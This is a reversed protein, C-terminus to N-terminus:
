KGVCFRSFIEGSIDASATDGTVEGLLSVAREADALVADPTMGSIAARMASEMADAASSLAAAQRENTILVAGGTEKKDKLKDYIAKLLRDIGDGTKASVRVIDAFYPSLASEPFASELDSKNIVAVVRESADKKVSEAFEMDEKEFARSGDFVAITLAALAIQGRSRSVGIREVEDLADRMGATDRLSIKTGFLEMRESVVDRTTGPIDTVIAREDGLLANFLSSKGANVRGCIAVPIGTKLFNGREFSGALARIDSLGSELTKRMKEYYFPEIEDDPYDVVAYFHAITDIINKRVSSIKDYIGGGMAALANRVESETEAEILDAVAEAASLDMKGNLFATKTFEGAEAQRAGHHILARMLLAMVEHSGHCYFEATDEGTYTTPGPFAAAMCRDIEGGDKGFLKGYIMRGPNKSLPGKEGAPSFVRDAIEIARIGSMRVVGIASIGGGTAIAAITDGGTNANKM